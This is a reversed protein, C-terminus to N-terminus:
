KWNKIANKLIEIIAEQNPIDDEEFYHSIDMLTDMVTLIHIEDALVHMKDVAQVSALPTVIVLKKISIKKLYNSAAILSLGNTLGDAVLIVVKNRVIEEKLIGGNGLIRNLQHWQEMKEQEIVGRYESELSELEGTSYMDNYTFGGNQDVVGLVSPEGPIKIDEMLMLMLPCHLEAAIQAGVVVGGDTLAIIVSDASKYDKLLAALQKGAKTRSSFYM